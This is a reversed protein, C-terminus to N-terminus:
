RFTWSHVWPLAAASPPIRIREWAATKKNDLSFAGPPQRVFVDLRRSSVDIVGPALLFVRVAADFM